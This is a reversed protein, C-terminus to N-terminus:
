QYFVIFINQTPKEIFGLRKIKTYKKNYYTIKDHNEGM